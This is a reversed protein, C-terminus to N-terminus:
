VSLCECRRLWADHLQPRSGHPVLSQRLLQLLQGIPRKVLHTVCHTVCHACLHCMRRTHIAGFFPIRTGLTPDTGPPLAGAPATAPLVEQVRDSREVAAPTGHCYRTPRQLPCLVVDRCNSHRQQSCHSNCAAQYKKSDGGKQARGM